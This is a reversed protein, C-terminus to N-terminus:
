TEIVDSIRRAATLLADAREATLGKGRQARVQSVFATLTEEAQRPKGAALLRQVSVLKDRLSTGLKRLQYSEVLAILDAIQEGAGKVHVTFSSTAKNGAADTATCEVETGGIAFLSGSAPACAISPNPPVDDTASTSFSVVAGAPSTADATVGDPVTLEPATTDDTGAEDLV